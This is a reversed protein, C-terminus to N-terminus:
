DIISLPFLVSPIAETLNDDARVFIVLPSEEFSEFASNSKFVESISIFILALVKLIFEASLTLIIPAIPGNVLALKFM